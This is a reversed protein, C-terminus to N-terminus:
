LENRFSSPNDAKESQQDADFVMGGFQIIMNKTPKSPTSKGIPSKKGKFDKMKLQYRHFLEKRDEPSSMQPSTSYSSSASRVGPPKAFSSSEAEWLEWLIAHCGISM